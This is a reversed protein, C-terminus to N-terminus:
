VHARGIECAIALALAAAGAIGFMRSPRKMTVGRIWRVAPRSSGMLAVRAADCGAGTAAWSTGTGAASRGTLPSGPTAQSGWWGAGATGFTVPTLSGDGTVLPGCTVLRRPARCWKSALRPLACAFSSRRRLPRGSASRGLSRRALPLWQSVCCWRAVERFSRRIRFIGRCRDEGRAVREMRRRRVCWLCRGHWDLRERPAHSM